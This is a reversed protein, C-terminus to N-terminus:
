TVITISRSKVWTMFVGTLLLVLGPVFIGLFSAVTLCHCYLFAGCTYITRTGINVCNKSIWNPEAMINFKKLYNLYCIIFVIFIQRLQPKPPNLKWNSSVQKTTKQRDFYLKQLPNVFHQLSLYRFVVSVREDCTYIM